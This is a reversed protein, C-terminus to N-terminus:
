LRKDYTFIKTSLEWPTLEAIENLSYETKVESESSSQSGSSSHKKKKTRKKKFQKINKNGKENEFLYFIKRNLQDTM